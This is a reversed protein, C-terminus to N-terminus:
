NNITQVRSFSNLYSYTLLNFIISIKFIKSKNQKFIYPFEFSTKSKKKTNRSSSVITYSSQNTNVIM